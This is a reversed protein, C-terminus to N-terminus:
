QNQVKRSIYMELKRYQYASLTILITSNDIYYQMYM